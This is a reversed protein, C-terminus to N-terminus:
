AGAGALVARAARELTRNREAHALEALIAVDELAASREEPTRTRDIRRQLKSALKEFRTM